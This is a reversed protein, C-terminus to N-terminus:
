GTRASDQRLPFMAHHFPTQASCHSGPQPQRCRSGQPLLYDTAGCNSPIGTIQDVVDVQADSGVRIHFARRDGLQHLTRELHVDSEHEPSSRVVPIQGGYPGIRVKQLRQRLLSLLLGSVDEHFANRM